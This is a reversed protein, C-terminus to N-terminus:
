ISDFCFRKEKYVEFRNLLQVSLHFYGAALAYDAVLPDRNNLVEWGDPMTDMDTDNFLPSTGLVFEDLATLSDADVDGLSDTATNKDLSNDDEYQDPLGDSDADASYRSDLPWLDLTDIVNDGDDDADCENGVGDSDTDLQDANAVSPCNDVADAVGDGDTGALALSSLSLLIILCLTHMKPM